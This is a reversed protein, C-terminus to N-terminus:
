QNPYCPNTEWDNKQIARLRDSEENCYFSVAMGSAGARGTRGIRHVYSEPEDPLEYNIVHTILDVDIGRAALDTAIMVSYKGSRFGRLVQERASQSKGGHIVQANCGSKRLRKAINDAGRKTRAFVMIKSDNWTRLLDRLVDPRDGREVYLLSQEIKSVTTAPPTITVRTPQHLLTKALQVIPESLTASFFGSQRRPPLYNIIRKVDPLFGMDLMRDAEDLVFIELADFPVEDQRILDLLRGPTAVLVDTGRRLMQVQPGMGVGGFVVGARLKLFRGYVQFSELIQAALERTPALVLARPGRTSPKRPHDSLRQLIPLAFAATKGTGTQACGLLDRGDLLVPIAKSQVPTPVRYNEFYLAKLLPEALGLEAFPSDLNSTTDPKRSM